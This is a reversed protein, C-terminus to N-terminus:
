SVLMLQLGILACVFHSSLFNPGAAHRFAIFEISVFHLV